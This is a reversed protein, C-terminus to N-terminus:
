PTAPRRAWLQWHPSAGAPDFHQRLYTGYLRQMNALQDAKDPLAPVMVLDAGGLMAEPTPLLAQSTSYPGYLWFQPYGNGPRMGLVYPFPNVMDFTLVTRGTHEVTQLLQAGEVVTRMYEEATLTEGFSRTHNISIRYAQLLTDASPSGDGTLEFLDADDDRNVLFGALAPPAGPLAGLDLARPDLRAVRAAYSRLALVRNEAEPAIFLFALLLCGASALHGKWGTAGGAAEARRALEGFCLPAAVLAVLLGIRNDGISGRLVITAAICGLVFLIDLGARRGAARSAGFAALAGAIVPTNGVLLSVLQQAGFSGGEARAIFEVTNRLYAAHFHFAAEAATAVLVVLAIALAASDRHYKSVVLSAALFGLSMAGFSIKTYLGFLVLVALAAADIWKGFRRPRDPAVYFLLLATFAAWGHRNYFTAWTLDDHSHGEAMPVVILLWLFVFALVAAPLTLRRASLVAAPPLVVAATILANVGFIAGGELGLALGVAPVVPVLPGYFLHFDKYPVQGIHVRYAIDILGM